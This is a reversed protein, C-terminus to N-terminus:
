GKDRVKRKGKWNRGSYEGGNRKNVTLTDGAM